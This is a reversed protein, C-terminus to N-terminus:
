ASPSRRTLTELAGGFHGDDTGAAPPPRFLAELVLLREEKEINGQEKTLALFTTTMTARMGADASRELNAVFLRAFHRLGWLAIQTPISVLALPAFSGIGEVAALRVLFEPGFLIIAGIIVLAAATFVTLARRAAGSASAAKEQWYAAPTNLRLHEEFTEKLGQWEKNAAQQFEGWNTRLGTLETVATNKTEMVEDSIRKTKERTESIIQEFRGAQGDFGSRNIFDTMRWTNYGSLTYTMLSSLEEDSTMARIIDDMSIKLISALGGVAIHQSHVNDSSLLAIITSGFETCSYLSKYDAYQEFLTIISHLSESNKNINNAVLAIKIKTPLVLQKDEIDLKEVIGYVGSEKLKRLANGWIEIENEIWTKAEGISSFSVKGGNIGLDAEIFPEGDTRPSDANMGM